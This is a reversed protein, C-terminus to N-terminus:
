QDRCQCAARWDTICVREALASTPNAEIHSVTGPVIANLLRCLYVGNRLVEWVRKALAENHQLAIANKDVMSSRTSSSSTTDDSNTTATATSHDLDALSHAFEMLTDCDIVHALWQLAERIYSAHLRGM